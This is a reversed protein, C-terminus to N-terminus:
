RAGCRGGARRRASARAAAREESGVGPDVGPQHDGLVGLRRHDGLVPPQRRRCRDVRQRGRRHLLVVDRHSPAGRALQAGHDGVQPPHQRDLQGARAPPDLQARRQSRRRPGARREARQPAHDRARARIAPERRLQERDLLQEGVARQQRATSVLTPSNSHAARALHVGRVAGLEAAAAPALLGRHPHQHVVEVRLDGLAGVVQDDVAAGAARRAGPVGEVGDDALQAREGVVLRQEDLRALRDADKAGVLPRRADQDRVRVQDALPRVPVLKAAELREPQRHVALHGGARPDVDAALPDDLPGVLAEGLDRPAAEASREGPRDRQGGPEAPHAARLRERHRHVVADRQADLDVRLPDAAPELRAVEVLPGVVEVVRDRAALRGLRLPAREADAEARVGGLNDRLQQAAAEVGVDDGVLGAGVVRQDAVDGGAEREGSASSSRSRSGSSYM